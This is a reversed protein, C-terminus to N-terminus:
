ALEELDFGLRCAGLAADKRSRPSLAGAHDTADDVEVLAHCGVRDARRRAQELVLAALKLYFGTDVSKRPHRLM